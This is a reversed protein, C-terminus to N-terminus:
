KKFQPEPGTRLRAVRSLPSDRGTKRSFRRIVTGTSVSWNTVPWNPLTASDRSRGERGRVVADAPGAGMVWRRNTEAM